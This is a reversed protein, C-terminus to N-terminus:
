TSVLILRVLEKFKDTNKSIYEPLLNYDIKKKLISKGSWKYGRKDVNHDYM